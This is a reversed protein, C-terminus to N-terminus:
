VLGLKLYNRLGVGYSFRYLFWIEGDDPSWTLPSLIEEYHIDYNVGVPPEGRYKSAEELDFLKVIGSGDSNMVYVVEEVFHDVITGDNLRKYNGESRAFAIKKGDGSWVPGAQLYLDAESPGGEKGPLKRPIRAPFVLRKDSGNAAMTYVGAFSGNVGNLKAFAIRSGDPSWKPSLNSDLDETLRQRDSGDSAATAIEYDRESCSSGPFRETEYGYTAYVLRSGHPHLDPSNYDNQRGALISRVKEGNGWVTHIDDFPKTVAVIHQGDPTWLLNARRDVLQSPHSWSEGGMINGCFGLTLGCAGLTYFVWIPSTVLCWMLITGRARLVRRWIQYGMYM